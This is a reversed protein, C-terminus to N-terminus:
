AAVQKPEESAAGAAPAAMAASAPREPLDIFFTTGQEPQSEVWIDGHHDKVIGFSVSLGLGTGEGAQKTTFFPEFIRRQIDQPIGPGDDRVRVQVRGPSPRVASLWVHGPKGKTAQQANLVLNMLVQQLQNANGVIQPLDPPVEVALEVQHLGLQHRMIAAVDDLVKRLDTPEHAVKEQRAFRLLNDIIAKCRKTEKEMTELAQRLPTGAAAHRLNIQVLGLIGALPNKIEHAFGAGLQGFAAMKESQLLQAQAQQLQLERARLESTMRNFSDALTGIEDGARVSVQVDFKGQGIVRTADVLRRIPRTLTRSWVMGALVALLLLALSVATLRGLLERSAFYAASMPVEAVATLGGIRTSARGGIVVSGDKRYTRAEAMAGRNLSPLSSVRQRSAVQAPERSALLVGDRDALYVNFVRSETALQLLADLRIVAMVVRPPRGDDRPRALTMTFTPLRSTMTSNRVSVGERLLRDARVVNKAIDAGIRTPDLGARDMADPNYITGVLSDREFASLIVIDPFDSAMQRLVASRTRRDLEPDDMARAYAELRGRADELYTNAEEAVHTAVLASVDSIYNKKDAHFLSAMTFTITGVVATIVFLLAIMIKLRISMRLRRFM